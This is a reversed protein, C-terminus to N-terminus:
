PNDWRRKESISVLREIKYPHGRDKISGSQRGGRYVKSSKAGNKMYYFLYIVKIYIYQYYYFLSLKNEKM